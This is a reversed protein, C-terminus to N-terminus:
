GRRAGCSRHSIGLPVLGLTDPNYRAIHPRPPQLEAIRGGVDVCVQWNPERRRRQQVSQQSAARGFPSDRLLEAVTQDGDAEKAMGQRGHPGEM